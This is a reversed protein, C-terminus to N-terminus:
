SFLKMILQEFKQREKQGGKKGRRRAEQMVCKNMVDYKRKDTAADHVFTKLKQQLLLQSENVARLVASLNTEFSEMDDIKATSM